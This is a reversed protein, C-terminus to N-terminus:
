KIVNLKCRINKKQVTAEIIVISYKYKDSEGSIKKNAQPRSWEENGQSHRGIVNRFKCM